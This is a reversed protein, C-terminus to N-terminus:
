MKRKKPSFAALILKHAKIEGTNTMLFIDQFDEDNKIDYIMKELHQPFNEKWDIGDFLSVSKKKLEQIESTSIEEQKSKPSSPSESQSSDPRYDSNGDSSGRSSSSWSQPKASSTSPSEEIDENPKAKKAITEATEHFAVFNIDSQKKEKEIIVFGIESIGVHIIEIIEMDDDESMPSQTSDNQRDSTDDNDVSNRGVEESSSSM